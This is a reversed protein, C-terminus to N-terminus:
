PKTLEDGQTHGSRENRERLYTVWWNRDDLASRPPWGPSAEIMHLLSWALGFATSDDPPFVGLLAVAEEITPTEASPGDIAEDYKRATAEDLDDDAPLPGLDLLAVFEPRM